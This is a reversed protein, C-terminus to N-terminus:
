TEDVVELEPDCMIERVTALNYEAKSKSSFTEGPTNLGKGNAARLRWGVQGNAARYFTLRPKRNSM